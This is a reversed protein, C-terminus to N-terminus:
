TASWSLSPPYRRQDLEPDVTPLPGLSPVPWPWLLPGDVDPAEREDRLGAAYGASYGARWGDEHWLMRMPLEDHGTAEILAAVLVRLAESPKRADFSFRELPTGNLIEIACARSQSFAEAVRRLM